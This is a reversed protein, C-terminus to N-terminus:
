QSSRLSSAIWGKRTAQIAESCECHRSNEVRSRRNQNLQLTKGDHGPEGWADMLAFSHKRLPHIAPDLGAIVPVAASRRAAAPRYIEV